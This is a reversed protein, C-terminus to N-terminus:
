VPTAKRYIVLTGYDSGSDSEETLFVLTAGNDLTITPRHMTTRCKGEGDAFAGADFSVIKRGVLLRSTAKAM